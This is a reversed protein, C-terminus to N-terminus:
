LLGFAREMMETTARHQQRYAETHHSELLAEDLSIITRGSKLEEGLAIKRLAYAVVSGAMIAAGGLQPQVALERGVQMISEQTRISANKPGIISMAYKLFEQKEVKKTLLDEVNEVIGHFLPLNPDLDFREVDLMASDGLDTVMVVPLGRKRAEVRLMVKVMLNDIEDVVAHIPWPKEFFDAINDPTIDAGFREITVYPNMEYLKRAIVLSKSLGVDSVGAVIRNLNSGSIVAGDALKLQQSIGTIGVTIAANSGVSMGACAVNFAELKKQEEATILNRNRTSRLELFQERAIVHVLLGSWPYYVWSGKQWAHSDAHHEALEGELIRVKEEYSSQYLGPRRSVILEAYQEDYNDIVGRITEEELLNKLERESTEGKMEIVRPQWSSEDWKGHKAANRLEEPWTLSVDNPVLKGQGM